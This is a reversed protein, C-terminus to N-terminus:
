KNVLGRCRLGLSGNKQKKKVLVSLIPKYIKSYAEDEENSSIQSSGAAYRKRNM